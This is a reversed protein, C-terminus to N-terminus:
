GTILRPEPWEQGNWATRTITGAVAGAPNDATAQPNIYMTGTPATVGATYPAPGFGPAAAVPTMTWKTAGCVTPIGAGAAALSSVTSCQYNLPSVNDLRFAGLTGCAGNALGCTKGTSPAGMNPEKILKGFDAGKNQTGM